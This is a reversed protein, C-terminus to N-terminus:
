NREFIYEFALDSTIFKNKDFEVIKIHGPNQYYYKGNDLKEVVNFTNKVFYDVKDNPVPRHITIENESSVTWFDSELVFESKNNRYYVKDQTFKVDSPKLLSEYDGGEVEVMLKLQEIISDKKSESILVMEKLKWEGILDTKKIEQSYNVFPLLFFIIIFSKKM